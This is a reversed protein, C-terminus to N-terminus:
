FQSAHAAKCDVLMHGGALSATGKSLSTPIDAVNDTSLKSAAKTLVQDLYANADQLLLHM